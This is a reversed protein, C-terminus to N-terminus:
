KIAEIYIWKEHGDFDSKSIQYTINKFGIDKLDNILNNEDIIKVDYGSNTTTADYINDYYNATHKHGNGYGMQLSFIGGEKMIRFIESMLLFRTEYVCIHQFVITSMVFKYTNDKLEQLDLGNNTYFNYKCKNGVENKLNEWCISINKEAIDVGDVQKFINPYWLIMNSVNRGQGCGFDLAMENKLLEPTDNLRKLLINKYDPNTDHRRHNEYMEEYRVNYYSKQMKAYDNKNKMSIEIKNM